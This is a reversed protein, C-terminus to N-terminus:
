RRDGRPRLVLVEPQLVGFLGTVVPRRPPELLVPEDLTVDLLLPRPHGLPGVCRARVRAMGDVPHFNALTVQVGHRRGIQEFWAELGLHLGERVFSSLVSFDLDVSHRWDAFYLQRLATGGKLCLTDAMRATQGLADLACVVVYEHETQGVGLGTRSAIRRLEPESILAGEMGAAAAPPHQRHDALAGVEAGDAPGSPDLRHYNHDAPQALRELLQRDGIELLELWYALRATAGRNGLRLSYDALRTLDLEDSGFWLGKAPELPGGAYRPRDFGDVIAKEREAIQVATDGLSVATFGFFKRADLTVFRYTHNEITVQRKRRTTALWIPRPLRESFGYYNLATAYALYYPQVLAAALVYEHEAWQAEPGAELPLIRYKGREM